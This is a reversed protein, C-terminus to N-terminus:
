DYENCSPGEYSASEPLTDPCEASLCPIDYNGTAVVTEADSGGHNVKTPPDGSRYVEKIASTATWCCGVFNSECALGELPVSDSDVSSILDNPTGESEM